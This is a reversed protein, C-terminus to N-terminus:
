CLHNLIFGQCLEQFWCGWSLILGMILPADECEKPHIFNKLICDPCRQTGPSGIMSLSIMNYKSGDASSINQSIKMSIIYKM